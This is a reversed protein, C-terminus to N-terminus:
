NCSLMSTELLASLKRCEAYRSTLREVNEYNEASVIPGPARPIGRFCRLVFNCPLRSLLVLRSACQPGRKPRRPQEHKRKAGEHPVSSTASCRAPPSRTDTRDMSRDASKRAQEDGPLGRALKSHNEGLASFRRFLWAPFYLPSLPTLADPHAVILQCTSFTGGRPLHYNSTGVERRGKERNAM